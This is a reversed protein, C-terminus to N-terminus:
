RVTLMGPKLSRCQYSIPKYGRMHRHVAESMEMVRAKCERDSNYPGRQDELMICQTPNGILCVIIIAQLMIFSDGYTVIYTCWCWNNFM